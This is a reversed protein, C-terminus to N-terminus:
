GRTLDYKGFYFINLMYILYMVAAFYAAHVELLHAVADVQELHLKHFSPPILALSSCTCYFVQLQKVSIM